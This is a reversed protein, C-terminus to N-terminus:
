HLWKAVASRVESNLKSCILAAVAVASRVEYDGDGGTAAQVAAQCAPSMTHWGDSGSLAPDGCEAVVTKYLPQPVAGHGFLFAMQMRYMDNGFACLGVKSGWCGNGVALGKLNITNDADLMIQEALTPIYIGAYSEGTLYFDNTAFQVVWPPWCAATLTNTHWPPM